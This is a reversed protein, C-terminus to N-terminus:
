KIKVIIMSISVASNRRSDDCHIVPMPNYVLVLGLGLRPSFRSLVDFGLNCSKRISRDVFRNCTSVDSQRKGSSTRIVFLHMSM